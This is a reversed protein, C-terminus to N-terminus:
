RYNHLSMLVKLFSLKSDPFPPCLINYPWINVANKTVVSKGNSWQKFSEYGSCRGSGSFGVGGFGTDSELVQLLAENTCLAGSSTEEELRKPHGSSSSGFYYIALPKEAKNIREIVEDFNRFSIIPLIPGFIEHKM